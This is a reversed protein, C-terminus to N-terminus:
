AHLHHDHHYVIVFAWRKGVGCGLVAAPQDQHVVRGVIRVVQGEYESLQSADVRPASQARCLFIHHTFFSHAFLDAKHLVMVGCLLARGM